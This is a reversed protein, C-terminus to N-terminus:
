PYNWAFDVTVAKHDSYFRVFHRRDGSYWYNVEHGGCSMSRRGLYTNGGIVPSAVLEVSANAGSCVATTDVSHTGASNAWMIPTDVQHTYDARSVYTAAIAPTALMLGAMVALVSVAAAKRPSARDSM